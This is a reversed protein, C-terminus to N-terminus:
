LTRRNHSVTIFLWIHTLWWCLSSEWLLIPRLVFQLLRSTHKWIPSPFPPYGCQQEQGRRLAGDQVSGAKFGPFCSQIRPGEENLILFTLTATPLYAVSCFSFSCMQTQLEQPPGPKPIPFPHFPLTSCCRSPLTWVFCMRSGKRIPRYGFLFMVSSSDYQHMLRENIQEAVM